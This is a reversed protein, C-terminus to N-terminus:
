AVEELSGTLARFQPSTSLLREFPGEAVLRGKHLVLVRDAREVSAMRHAAVIVTRRAMVASLVAAETKPDLAATAEDLVLVKPDRYLARAILIRQREGGSLFAGAEGVPACLGGPSRAITHGLHADEIARALRTRDVADEAVGFAINDLITGTILAGDQPVHGITRWWPARLTSLPAGGLSMHGSTPALLGLLILLLTSKGAGTEGVIAVHEGPAIQLSIDSLVAPGGPHSFGVKECSLVGDAPTKAVAQVAASARPSPTASLTAVLASVNASAAAMHHAASSFKVALQRLRLMAVVVMAVLPAADVAPKTAVISAVVVALGLLAFLETIPPTMRQVTLRTREARSFAGEARDHRTALADEAGFIKAAVFARHGDAVATMVAGRAERRRESARKLAGALGATVGAMALATLALAAFGAAPTQWVLVAVIALAMVAALAGDLLPMVSGTVATHADEHVIRLRDAGSLRGYRSLSMHQTARFLRDSLARKLGTLVSAQAFALAILLGNKVAFLGVLVLAPVLM